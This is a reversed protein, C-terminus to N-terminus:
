TPLSSRDLYVSKTLGLQADDALTVNEGHIARARDQDGGIGQRRIRRAEEKAGPRELARKMLHISTPSHGEIRAIVYAAEADSMVREPECGYVCPLSELAGWMRCIAPRSDYVSCKKDETLAPCDHINEFDTALAKAKGVDILPLHVGAKAVMRQETEAIPIATCTSHCLGKCEKMKPIRDYLKRM